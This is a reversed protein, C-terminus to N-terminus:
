LPVVGLEVLAIAGDPGTFSFAEGRGQAQAFGTLRRNGTDYLTLTGDREVALRRRDPFCAYRTGNQAGTSSPQGLHSPWWVRDTSDTAGKPPLDSGLGRAALDALVAAVKGKLAENFMDGIQLLGGSSWQGMGGLEPHHWQAGGRGRRLADALARVAGESLGHERALLPVPDAADALADSREAASQELEILTGLADKPHLFLVPLGHAGIKPTGDGLVRLGAARLSERAAPLDPVEYCVHHVGGAPNRALFAAIPSREDLPELLEIKSNALTVFVVRVGHEPLSLPASVTAALPGAYFAAAEALSPVAIAVHNLRDLMPANM